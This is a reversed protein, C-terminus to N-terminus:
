CKLKERIIEITEPKSQIEKVKSLIEEINDEINDIVTDYDTLYESFNNPDINNLNDEIFSKMNSNVVKHALYEIVTNYTDDFM